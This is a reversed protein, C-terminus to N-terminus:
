YFSIVQKFIYNKEPSEITFGTVKYQTGLSDVLFWEKEIKHIYLLNKILFIDEGIIIKKNGM